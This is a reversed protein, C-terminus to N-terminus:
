ITTVTMIIIVTCFNCNSFCASLLPVVTTLENGSLCLYQRYFGVSNFSVLVASTANDYGTGASAFCVGTAFDEIRYVPDLYAPISSKLGFGESILDPPVRGNSFRGTPRGGDFDRGYPRFNSKLVTAIANNNGSDVSSDGFVIVAPVHGGSVIMILSFQTVLYCLTAAIYTPKRDM